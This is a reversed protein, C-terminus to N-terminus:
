DLFVVLANWFHSLLEVIASAAAAAVVVSAPYQSGVGHSLATQQIGPIFHQVPANALAEPLALMSCCSM